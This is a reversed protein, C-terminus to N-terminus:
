RHRGRGHEGHEHESGALGAATSLIISSASLRVPMKRGQPLSESWLRAGPAPQGSEEVAPLGSSMFGRVEEQPPHVPLTTLDDPYESRAPATEPAKHASRRSLRQSHPPSTATGAHMAAAPQVPGNGALDFGLSLEPACVAFLAVLIAGATAAGLKEWWPVKRPEMLISRIRAGLLSASAAFDVGVVPGRRTMNFRIFRALSDAYDFRHEPRAEVVAFDCALERELRMKKRALWVAPHFFLLVCIIDSCAAALYDHRLIHVLEHRFVDAMESGTSEKFADPILICPRRWYVTGPSALGPLALLRCSKVGLDRCLLHLVRALDPSPSSGLRLLARLRLSSWLRRSALLFVGMLYGCGLLFSGHAIVNASSARVVFRGLGAPPSGLHLRSAALTAILTGFDAYAVLGTWYLASGLLFALWVLFRHQPRRLLRTFCLCFLGALAVRLAFTVLAGDLQLYNPSRMIAV